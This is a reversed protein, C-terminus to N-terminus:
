ASLKPYTAVHKLRKRKKPPFAQFWSEGLSWETWGLCFLTNGSVGHKKVPGEREMQGARAENTLPFMVHVATQCGLLLDMTSMRGTPKASTRLDFCWHVDTLTTRQVNFRIKMEVQLKFLDYLCNSLASNPKFCALKTNTEYKISLWSQIRSILSSLCCTYEITIPHAKWTNNSCLQIQICM